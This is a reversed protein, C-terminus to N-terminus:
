DGDDAPRRSRRPARYYGADTKILDGLHAPTFRLVKAQFDRKLPRAIAWGAADLKARARQACRRLSEESTFGHRAMLEARRIDCYYTEVLVEYEKNTLGSRAFVEREREIPYRRTELRPGRPVFCDACVRTPEIYYIPYSRRCERCRFRSCQM